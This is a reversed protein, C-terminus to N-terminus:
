DDGKLKEIEINLHKNETELIGNEKQLKSIIKSQKEIKTELVEVRMNMTNMQDQLQSVLTMDHKNREKRWNLFFDLVKVIGVGIFVYVVDYINM